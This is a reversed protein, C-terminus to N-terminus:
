QNNIQRNKVYKEIKYNTLNNAVIKEINQVVENLITIHIKPSEQQETIIVNPTINKGKFWVENSIRFNATRSYGSVGNSRIYNLDPDIITLKEDILDISQQTLKVIPANNKIDEITYRLYPIDNIVSNYLEPLRDKYRWDRMYYEEISSNKINGIYRYPRGELSEWNLYERFLLFYEVFSISVGRKIQKTLNALPTDNGYCFDSHWTGLRSGSLHSFLYNSSLECDTASTRAFCVTDLQKYEINFSYKIYIDTMVHSQGTSNTIEIKPFYTILDLWEDNEVVDGDPYISLFAKIVYKKYRESPIRTYILQKKKSNFDEWFFKLSYSKLIDDKKFKSSIDFKELSIEDDIYLATMRGKEKNIYLIRMWRGCWYFYNGVKLGKYIKSSLEKVTFKSFYNYENDTM